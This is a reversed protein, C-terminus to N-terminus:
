TYGVETRQADLELQQTQIQQKKADDEVQLSRLQQQLDLVPHQSIENQRLAAGLM